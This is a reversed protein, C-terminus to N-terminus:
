HQCILGHMEAVMAFDEHGARLRQLYGGRALECVAYSEGKHVFMVVPPQDSDDIYYEGPRAEQERITNAEAVAHKLTKYRNRGHNSPAVTM